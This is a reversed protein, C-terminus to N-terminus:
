PWTSRARCRTGPTCWTCDRASGPAALLLASVFQSSGSADVEIRGGEVGGTGHVTFPLTGRETGPGDLTIGLAALAALVPRMPRALAAEDGTFRTPGSVLAAIPPVFRM